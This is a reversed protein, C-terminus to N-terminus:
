KFVRTRLYSYLYTWYKHIIRFLIYIPTWKARKTPTCWISISNTTFDTVRAGVLGHWTLSEMDRSHCQEMLRCGSDTWEWILQYHTVGKKELILIAYFRCFTSLMQHRWWALFANKAHHRWWISVDVANSAMQAPFEGIVPSNGACLGTVRLKSTKKWRCRFLLNLLCDHPQHNPVGDRGNHLWQLTEGRATSGYDIKKSFPVRWVHTFTYLHRNLAFINM